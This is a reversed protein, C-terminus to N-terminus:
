LQLEDRHHPTLTIAEEHIEKLNSAPKITEQLSIIQARYSQLAHDLPSQAIPCTIILQHEGKTLITLLQEIKHRDLDTMFDDVLILVPKQLLKLAAMKFVIVLMKQQGRSAFHRSYHDSYLIEIDDLHAGYLTRQAAQEREFSKDHWVKAKYECVVMKPSSNQDAELLLNAERELDILLAQRKAQIISSLEKCRDTWADYTVRDIYPTKELLSNRQRIIKEYDRVMNGHSSDMMFLITDLFARRAVPYGRVLDLDDETITIVRYRDLIPKYSTVAKDNITVRRKASSIGATLNWQEQDTIGALKICFTEDEFKILQTSTKTRFSRLYCGYHLAELISTKGSGNDGVILTIPSNFTLNLQQFCRFNTLSLSTIKM